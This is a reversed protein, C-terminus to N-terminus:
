AAEAYKGTVTFPGLAGGMTARVDGTSPALKEAGAVIPNIAVALSGSPHIVSTSNRWFPFTTPTVFVAGYAIVQGPTGAPEYASAARAVSLRDPTVVDEGTATVTPDVLLGGDTLKVLGSGPLVKVAGAEIVSAAM